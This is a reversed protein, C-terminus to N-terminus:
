VYKRPNYNYVKAIFVVQTPYFLSLLSSTNFWLAFM